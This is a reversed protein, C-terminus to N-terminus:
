FLPSAQRAARLQRVGAFPTQSSRAAPTGPSRPPGPLAHAVMRLSAVIGLQALPQTIQRLLSPPEAIPPQVDQKPAVADLDVM